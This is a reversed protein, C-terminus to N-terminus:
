IFDAFSFILRYDGIVIDVYMCVYVCVCVCVCVSAHVESSSVQRTQHAGLQPYLGWQVEHSTAVLCIYM